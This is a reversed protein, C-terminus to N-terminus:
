GVSKPSLLPIVARVRQFFTPQESCVLKKIENSARQKDICEFRRGILEEGSFNELVLDDADFRGSLVSNIAITEGGRLPRNLRILWRPRNWQDVDTPSAAAACLDSPFGTVTPPQLGPIVFKAVTQDCTQNPDALCRIMVALVVTGDGSPATAATAAIPKAVTAVLAMSPVTRFIQPVVAAATVLLATRGFNGTVVTLLM